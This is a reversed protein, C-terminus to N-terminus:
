KEPLRRNLDVPVAYRPAAIPEGPAARELFTLSDYFDDLAIFKGNEEAWERMRRNCSHRWSLVEIRWGRRRMRELDAHFGVGDDFGAGDGTLMVVIGPNGNYDFGDRLMETQLVQDVGQERGQIAGRELLKITVGENELRNWVHRLEPPISGVAVAHEIKRGACALELLNRFHIRVRSRVSEGERDIAVQQASIFINSDDWYIFVKDM